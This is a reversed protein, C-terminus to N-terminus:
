AGISGGQRLHVSQSAQVRRLHALGLGAPVGFLFITGWGLIASSALALALAAGILVLALAYSFRPMALLLAALVFWLLPMCYWLAMLAASPSQASLDFAVQHVAAQWPSLGSPMATFLHVYFFPLWAVGAVVAVLGALTSLTLKVNM